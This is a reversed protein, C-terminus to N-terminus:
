INVAKVRHVSITMPRKALRGNKFRKSISVTKDGVSVVEWKVDSEWPEGIFKVIDGQKM